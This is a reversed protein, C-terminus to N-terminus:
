APRFAQVGFTGAAVVCGRPADWRLSTVVGAEDESAELEAIIRAVGDPLIRVLLPREPAELAVVVSGGPVFVAAMVRGSEDLLKWATDRLANLPDDGPVPLAGSDDAEDGLAPLDEERVRAWARDDWRLEEQDGLASRDYLAEDDVEGGDDADLQPLDEERLEEDADLPGEEGGDAVVAEDLLSSLEDDGLRADAEADELLGDEGSLSLDFSALDVGGADESDVLWSTETGDIEDTEIPEDESTEDDLADGLENAEDDLEDPALEADEGEGDLPPLDLDDDNRTPPTRM